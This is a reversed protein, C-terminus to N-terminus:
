EVVQYSSQLLHAQYQLRDKPITSPRKRVQGCLM